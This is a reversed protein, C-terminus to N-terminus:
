MHCKWAIPVISRDLSRDISRDAEAASFWDRTSVTVAHIVRRRDSDSEILALCPQQCLIGAADEIMLSDILMRAHACRSRCGFMQRDHGLGLCLWLRIRHLVYKYICIYRYTSISACAFPRARDRDIRASAMQISDRERDAHQTRARQAYMVIVFAFLKVKPAIHVASSPVISSGCLM